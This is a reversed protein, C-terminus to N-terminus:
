NGLWRVSEVYPQRKNGDFGITMVAGVRHDLLWQDDPLSNHALINKGENVVVDNGTVLVPMPYLAYVGRYYITQAFAESLTGESFGDFKLFVGRGDETARRLSADWAGYFWVLAAPRRPGTNVRYIDSGICLGMSTLVGLRIAWKLTESWKAM